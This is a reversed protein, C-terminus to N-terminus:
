SLLRLQVRVPLHDSPEQARSEESVPTDDTTYTLAVYGIGPLPEVMGNLFVHDLRSMANVPRHFADHPYGLFTGSMVKTSPYHMLPYAADHWEQLMSDRMAGGDKDDFFNFDGAVICAAEADKGWYREGVQHLAALAKWKHDEHLAPHVNVVALEIGTKIERLVVLLHSRVHEPNGTETDYPIRETRVLGFRLRDYFVAGAFPLQTDNYYSTAAAFNPFLRTVHAVFEDVTMKSTTLNRMEQICLIDIPAHKAVRQLTAFVKPARVDWEYGPELEERRAQDVNWTVFVVEGIDSM